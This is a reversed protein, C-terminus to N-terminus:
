NKQKFFREFNMTKGNFDIIINDFVVKEDDGYCLPADKWNIACDTGVLILRRIFSGDSNVLIDRAGPAIIQEQLNEDLVWHGSKDGQWIQWAVSVNQPSCNHIM